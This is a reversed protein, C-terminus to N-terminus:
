GKHWLCKGDIQSPSQSMTEFEFDLLVNSHNGQKLPNLHTGM